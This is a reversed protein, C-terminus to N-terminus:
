KEDHFPVEFCPLQEKDRRLIRIAKEWVDFTVCLLQIFYYIIQSTPNSVVHVLVSGGVSRKM